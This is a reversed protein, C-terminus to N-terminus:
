DELSVLGTEPDIESVNVQCFLCTEEEVFGAKRYCARASDNDTNVYLRVRWLDLRRALLFVQQLLRRAIGAGRYPPATWLEDVYLVGLRPDPKPLLAANVYAVLKGDEEAAYIFFSDSDLVRYRELFQDVREERYRATDMGEIGTRRWELLAALASFDQPGVRRITIKQGDSRAM